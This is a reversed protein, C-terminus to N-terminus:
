FTSLESESIQIFYQEGNESLDPQIHYKVGESGLLYVEKIIGSSPYIAGTDQFNDIRQFYLDSLAVREGAKYKPYLTQECEEIQSVKDLLYLGPSDGCKTFTLAESRFSIFGLFLILLWNM